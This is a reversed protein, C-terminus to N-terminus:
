SAARRRAFAREGAARLDAVLADFAEDRARRDPTRLIASPHATVFTLPSLDTRHFTGRLSAVSHAKGFASRVAVAGLCVLVRPEIRRLEAALWPRCARLHEVGPRRHLRRTPTETFRFHKVANTVYVDARPIRAEDLARSLVKGAPGVFPHGERDERDGPQEGVLVMAADASGEGFVTQTAERYLECGRCREAATRLASLNGVPPVFSAADHLPLRM